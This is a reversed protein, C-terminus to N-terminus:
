GRFPGCFSRETGCAAFIVKIAVEREIGAQFARFVAGQGGTGIRDRIVYGRLAQGPILQIQSDDTM